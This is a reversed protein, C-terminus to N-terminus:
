RRVTIPRSFGDLYGAGIERRSVFIRLRSVGRPLRARFRQAPRELTARKITIWRGASARQLEVQKGRVSRGAAVRTLFGTGSASLTV